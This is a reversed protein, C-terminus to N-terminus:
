TTISVRPFSCSMHFYNSLMNNVYDEPVPPLVFYGMHKSSYGFLPPFFKIYRSYIVLAM